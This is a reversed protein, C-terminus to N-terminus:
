TAPTNAHSSMVIVGRDISNYVSKKQGGIIRVGIGLRNKYDEEQQDFRFRNQSGGDRGFAAFGAQAGFFVARSVRTTSPALPIRKDMHILVNNYDGLAGREPNGIIDRGRANGGQIIAKNYDYWTVRGDTNDTKLSYIQWPHLIAIFKPGNPTSIAEIVPEALDALLVAEDLMTLRFSQGASASLSAETTDALPGYIIRTNGSTTTPATPTSMGTLNTDTEATNGALTNAAWTDMTNAGWKGLVERAEEMFNIFTRQRDMRGASKVGQRLQDIVLTQRHLVMAEENGQLQTNGSVGSGSLTNLLTGYVTDGAGKALEDTIRIASTPGRGWFATFKMISNVERDLKKEWNLVNHNSGTPVAFNAM